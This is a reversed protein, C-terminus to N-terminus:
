PNIHEKQTIPTDTQNEPLRFIHPPMLIALTRDDHNGTSWFNLWNQLAIQPKEQQLVPQLEAWLTAWCSSNELQADTEFKPDSVGDTMLLLTPMTHTTQIHTRQTLSDMKIEEASLFRTEGSYSGSDSKSSFLLSQTEPQWNAIVGDGVSYHVTLWQGSALPFSMVFLLTCSLKKLEFHHEKATQHLAMFAEYVAKTTLNILVRKANDTNMDAHLSSNPEQSNLAHQIANAAAKVVVQSGLRSFEASGAGDSVAIFHLHTKPDYAIAYDDDCPKGTHAHSRGRVRAAILQGQPTKICESQEDPKYFKIDTPTPINNWLDKPDHNIYIMQRNPILTNNDLMLSYRIEIDGAYNPTGSITKSEEHWELGCEPNFTLNTANNPLQVTYPEGKRANPLPSTQNQTPTNQTAAQFSSLPPKSHTMTNKPLKPSNEHIAPNEPLRMPAAPQPKIERVEDPTTTAKTETHEISEFPKIATNAATEQEGITAKPMAEDFIAAKDLIASKEAEPPRVEDSAQNKPSPDSCEIAQATAQPKTEKLYTPSSTQLDQPLPTPEICHNIQPTSQPQRFAEADTHIEDVSPKQLDFDTLKFAQWATNLQNFLEHHQTAFQEFEAESCNDLWNKWEALKKM